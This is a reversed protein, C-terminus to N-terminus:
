IETGLAINIMELAELMCGNASQLDKLTRVLGSNADLLAKNDKSSQRLTNLMDGVDAPMIWSDSRDLNTRWVMGHGNKVFKELREIAEDTPM